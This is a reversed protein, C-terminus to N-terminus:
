PTKPAEHIDLEPGIAEHKTIKPLIQVNQVVNRKKRTMSTSESYWIPQRPTKDKPLKWCDEHSGTVITFDTKNKFKKIVRIVFPDIFNYKKQHQTKQEAFTLFDDGIM